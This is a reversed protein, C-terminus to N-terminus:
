KGGPIFAICCDLRKSTNILRGTEEKNDGMSDKTISNRRRQSNYAACQWILREITVKQDCEECHPKLEDRIKYSKHQHLGNKVKISSSTTTTILRGHKQIQQCITKNHGCQQHLEEMREVVEAQEEVKGM